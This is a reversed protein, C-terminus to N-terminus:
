GFGAMHRPREGHRSVPRRHQTEPPPAEHHRRQERLQEVLAATLNTAGILGFIVAMPVLDPLAIAFAIAGAFLLLSGLEVRWASIVLGAIVAGIATFAELDSPTPGGPTRPDVPNDVGLWIGALRGIAVVLATLVLTEAVM